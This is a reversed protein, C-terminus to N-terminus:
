LLEKKLSQVENELEHKIFSVEKLFRYLLPHNKPISKRALQISLELNEEDEVTLTDKQSTYRTFVNSFIREALAYGMLIEDYSKDREQSLHHLAKTAAVKDWQGLLKASEIVWKNM